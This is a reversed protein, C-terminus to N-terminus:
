RRAVASTGFYFAIIDLMAYKLWDPTVMGELKVYQTVTESWLWWGETVEIPVNTPQGLFPALLILGVFCMLTVVIFRRIWVGGPTNDRLAALNMSEDAAKAKELLMRHQEARDAQAQGWLKLIAGMVTSFGMSIVELPLGFM